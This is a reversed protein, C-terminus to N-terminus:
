AQKMLGLRERITFRRNLLIAAALLGAALGTWVGEAGWGLPFALVYATTVGIAWYSLVAIQMPVRTDKLGRLSGAAVAQAADTLQFAAAVWLLPIATAMVAAAEPNSFDLYLAILPRPMVFFVIAALLAFSMGIVFTAWGARGVDIPSARGNANGVRVSGAQSLGLPVMFTLSALQLVIAHAALPLTGIWGIMVSAASFLGAEAFITLGIPVALFSIERLAAWDPRWARVFLEYHRFASARFMVAFGILAVAGNAIVTALGAGAMEMRPLGFNGFILGYNLFGNLAAACLTLILVTNAWEVSSFFARQGIIAFMPVIAWMGWTMYQAALAALQPNQGLAHVLIPEVFALPLLFVVSLAFLAWFGMRTSRRVAQSDEQGLAGAILPMMAAGVGLGFIYFIFIFQFALTGAALQPTGLWGLMVTDTVNILMHAVQAAVLPGGLVVTAKLHGSFSLPAKKAKGSFQVGGETQVM